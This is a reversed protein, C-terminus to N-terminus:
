HVDRQLGFRRGQVSFQLLLSIEILEHCIERLLHPLKNRRLEVADSRPGCLVRGQVGQLGHL